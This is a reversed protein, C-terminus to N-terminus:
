DCGWGARWGVEGGRIVVRQFAVPMNGQRVGDPAAPGAQMCFMSAHFIPPFGAKKGGGPEESRM